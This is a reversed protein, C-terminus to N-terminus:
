DRRSGRLRASWAHCWHLAALQLVCIWLKFYAVVVCDCYEFQPESGRVRRFASRPAAPDDSGSGAAAAGCALAAAVALLIWTRQM